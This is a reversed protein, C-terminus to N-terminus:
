NVKFVKFFEVQEKMIRLRHLFQLLLSNSLPIKGKSGVPFNKFNGFEPPLFRFLVM